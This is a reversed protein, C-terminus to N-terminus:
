VHARGIKPDAHLSYRKVIIRQDPVSVGLFVDGEGYEGPGTKFYRSMSMAKESSSKAKLDHIIQEHLKM